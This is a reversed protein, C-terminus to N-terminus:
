EFRDDYEADELHFLNKYLLYFGPNGSEEFLDWSLGMPDVPAGFGNGDMFGYIDKFMIEGEEIESNHSM